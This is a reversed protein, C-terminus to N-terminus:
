GITNAVTSDGVCVYRGYPNLCRPSAKGLATMPLLVMRNNCLGVQTHTHTARIMRILSRMLSCACM